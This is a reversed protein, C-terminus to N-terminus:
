NPICYEGSAKFEAPCKGRRPPAAACLNDGAEYYGVPCGEKPLPLLLKCKACQCLAASCIRKVIHDVDGRYEYRKAGSQLIISIRRTPRPLDEIAIHTIFMDGFGTPLFEWERVECTENLCLGLDIKAGDEGYALRDLEPPLKINKNFSLGVCIWGMKDDIPCASLNVFFGNRKDIELWAQLGVGGEGETLLADAGRANESLIAMGVAIFLACLTKM